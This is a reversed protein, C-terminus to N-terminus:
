FFCSIEKAFDHGIAAKSVREVPDSVLNRVIEKTVNPNQLCGYRPWWDDDKSLHFLIDSTTNPHTSALFRININPDRALFNLIYTPTETSIVLEKKLEFDDQIISPVSELPTNKNKVARSRVVSYDDAYLKKLIKADSQANSAVHKRVDFSKDNSLFFLIHAPTGQNKAVACRVMVNSDLAFQLLDEETVNPGSAAEARAEWSELKFWRKTKELFRRFIM